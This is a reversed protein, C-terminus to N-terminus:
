KVLSTWNLLTTFRQPEAPTSAVVVIFRQGDPSAAFGLSTLQAKPRTFLARPVSWEVGAATPHVDVAMM